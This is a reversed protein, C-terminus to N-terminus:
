KYKSNYYDLPYFVQSTCNIIQSNNLYEVAGIMSNDLIILKSDINELQKKGRAFLIISIKPTLPFYIDTDARGIGNQTNSIIGDIYNILTIPNDSTIFPTEMYNENYLVCWIKNMLITCHNIVKEPNNINYLLMQKIEEKTYSIGNILEITKNSIIAKNEKIINAKTQNIIEYSKIDKWYDFFAPVRTMQANIFLSLYTKEYATIRFLSPTSMNIRIILDDMVKKCPGEIANSYFHEWSKEDELFSVDYYNKIYGVNSTSNIFPNGNKPVVGIRYKKGTKTAFRNLYSKPVIHQNTFSHNKRKQMNIM